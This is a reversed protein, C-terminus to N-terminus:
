SSLLIFHNFILLFSKFFNNKLAEWMSESWKKCHHFAVPKEAQTNAVETFKLTAILSSSSFLMCVVHVFAVKDTLRVPAVCYPCFELIKTTPLILTKKYVCAGRQRETKRLHEQEESSSRM